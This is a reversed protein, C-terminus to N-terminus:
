IKDVEKKLNRAVHRAHCGKCSKFNLLITGMNYRPYSRLASHPAEEVDGHYSVVM